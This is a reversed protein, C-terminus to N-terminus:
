AHLHLKESFRPLPSASTTSPSVAVHSSGLSQGCAPGAVPSVLRGTMHVAQSECVRVLVRRILAFPPFAYLDLGDCPFSFADQRWAGQDPLPSVYLPLRRILATAFLDVLSSGWVQFVKRCIEPHLTWESGVCERSLVDVIVNRCGPVFVPCLSISQSECWRLVTGALASLPESRTDESRRIYAVVTSNVSM